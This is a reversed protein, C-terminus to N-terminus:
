NKQNNNLKSKVQSELDPIKKLFAFTSIKIWIMEQLQNNLKILNIAKDIVESIIVIM